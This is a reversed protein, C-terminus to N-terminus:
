NEWLGCLSVSDRYRLPIARVPSTWTTPQRGSSLEAIDVGRYIGGDTVAVSIRADNGLQKRALEEATRPSKEAGNRLPQKSAELGNTAPIQTAPDFAM